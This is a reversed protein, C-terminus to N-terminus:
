SWENRFGEEDALRRVVKMVEPSLYGKSKVLRPYVPLRERLRCGAEAVVRKLRSIEPWPHEPNIFDPTVPSIGGLDDAGSLVALQLGESGDGEWLLNPPIQVSVGPMVIKTFSIIEVIEELSPPPTTAMPTGAKPAFPQIIIEQIHGFKWNIERLKLISQFRDKRTEGIGVLIGTTFPIKLKGATEIMKLRKEPDKGPSKAHSPVIAATELMLGMSANWRKLRRMEEENLLGANTHPLLGIKLLEKCVHELYDVMTSFGFNELTIRVEPHVDAREGLTILAESCGFSVAKEGLSIIEEMEMVWGRDRRFGCYGCRNRCFSTVPIFVNRSFTLERFNKGGNM